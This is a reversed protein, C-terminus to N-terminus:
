VMVYMMFLLSSSGDIGASMMMEWFNTYVLIDYLTKVAFCGVGM